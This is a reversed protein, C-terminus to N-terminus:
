MRVLTNAKCTRQPRVPQMSFPNATHDHITAPQGDYGYYNYYLSPQHTAKSTNSGSRQMTKSTAMGHRHTIPSHGTAHQWRKSRVCWIRGWRLVFTVWCGMKVSHKTKFTSRQVCGGRCAALCVFLCCCCCFLADHPDVAETEEATPLFVPTCRRQKLLHLGLKARCGTQSPVCM